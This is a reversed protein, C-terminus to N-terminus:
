LTRGSDPVVLSMGDTLLTSCARFRDGNETAMWCDQCAGMFCFGAREQGSFESVRLHNSVALVATLVTDGELASHPAGNLRFRLTPRDTSKVRRLLSM